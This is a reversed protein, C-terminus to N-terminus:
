LGPSDTVAGVFAMKGKMKLMSAYPNLDPCRNPTYIIANCSNAAAAVQEADGMNVYHDAGYEMAKARKAESRSMVTVTCGYAKAFMCAMAGIGGLGVVGVNDGPKAYTVLPKYATIGGCMLPGLYEPPCVGEDPLPIAFKSQCFLKQAFGGKHGGACTSDMGSM